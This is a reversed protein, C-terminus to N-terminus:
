TSDLLTSNPGLHRHLGHGFSNMVTIKTFCVSSDTIGTEIRHGKTGCDSMSVVQGRHGITTFYAHM